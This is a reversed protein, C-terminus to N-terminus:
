FGAYLIWFGGYLKWKRCQIDYSLHGIRAGASLNWPDFVHDDSMKKDCFFLPILDRHDARRLFYRSDRKSVLSQGISIRGMGGIWGPRLDCFIKATSSVTRLLVGNRPRSGFDSIDDKDNRDGTLPIGGGAKEKAAKLLWASEM